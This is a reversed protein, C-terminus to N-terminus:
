VQRGLTTQFAQVATRYNNAQTQTLGYGISAFASERNTYEASLDGPRFIKFTTDIYNVAPASSNVYQTLNKYFEISNPTAPNKTAIYFGQSNANGVNIFGSGNVRGFFNGAATILYMGTGFNFGSKWSAIEVMNAAATNSRSYYAIHVDDIPLVDNRLFTDAFGNVGNPLVGTSSHTLGGSFVLRFAVDLDRPDKLNFKHTTTTGGVFPYIANMKTWIGYGKLDIVLTNIANKITADTIGTANFFAVADPDFATTPRTWYYTITKNPLDTNFNKQRFRIM